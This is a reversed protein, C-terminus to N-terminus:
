ESNYFRADTAITLTSEQHKIQIFKDQYTKVQNISDLLKKSISLPLSEVVRVLQDAHQFDFEVHVDGIEISKIFKVYEYMIASGVINKITSSDSLDDKSMQPVLCRNVTIDDQMTPPKLKIRTQDVSIEKTNLLDDPKQITEYSKVHDQIDHKITDGSVTQVPADYGISKCRLGIAIPERDIAYLTIPEKCCEMCIESMLIAHNTTNLVTADLSTSIIRKQHEITLPSFKVLKACSPVYVDVVNSTGTENIAQILDNYKNDSM